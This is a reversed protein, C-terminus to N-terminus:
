AVVIELHSAAIDKDLYAMGLKNLYDMRDAKMLDIDPAPLGLREYVGALFAMYKEGEKLMLLSAAGVDPKVQAQLEEPLEIAIVVPEETGEIRVSRDRVSQQAWFYALEKCPSLFVPEISETYNNGITAMTQKHAQKMARDGSRKLGQEKISDILASSTGHYWVNSTSFGNNSLLAQSDQFHSPVDSM